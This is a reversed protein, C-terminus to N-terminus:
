FITFSGDPAAYKALDSHKLLKQPAYEHSFAIQEISGVNEFEIYRITNTAEDIIAYEYFSTFVNYSAIYSPLPFLDDSHKVMDTTSSFTSIRELEQQFRVEPMSWEVYVEFRDYHNHNVMEHFEFYRVSGCDIESPSFCARGGIVQYLFSYNYLELDIERPEGTINTLGHGALSSSLFCLTNPDYNIWLWFLFFLLANVLIASAVISCTLVIRRKNKVIRHTEM